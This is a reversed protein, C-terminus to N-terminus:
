ADWSLKLLRKIKKDAKRLIRHKGDINERASPNELLFWLYDTIGKTLISEIKGWLPHNPFERSRRIDTYARSIMTENNREQWIKTEFGPIFGSVKIWDDLVEEATLEEVLKWALRPFSTGASVALVSGGGKTKREPGQGPISFLTYDRDQWSERKSCIEWTGLYFIYDNSRAFDEYLQYAHKQHLALEDSFSYAKILKLLFRFNKLFPESCMIKDPIPDLAPIGLGAAYLWGMFLHLTTKNTKLPFVMSYPFRPNKRRKEKLYQCLELFNDRGKIDSFDIDYKGLLKKNAMLAKVHINWPVALQQGRYKCDRAMWDTLPPRYLFDPKELLFGLHGFTEVWSTGLQFVDPANDNKFSDVFYSFAKGWSVRNLRVEVGYKKEFKDFIKQYFRKTEPNLYTMLVMRIAKKM